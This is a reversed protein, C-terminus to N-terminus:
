GDIVDAYEPHKAYFHTMFPCVLVARRGSERLIDFAGRALETGIGQGSFESPVETHIFALKGDTDRYYAAAFATDHIAREFRHERPNERVRADLRSLAPAAQGEERRIADEVAPRQAMRWQFRLLTDPVAVGFKEAWRLMVFLFCDAASLEDGFLYDGRMQTAAFQLHRAVAEGALRKEADSSDHWMPKFAHHIDSEIFSLMELQRARGLAGSPQLSPKQGAIWDLLAINETLIQGDDFALAPVYGKPNIKLYDGSSATRKAHLDVSEIDFEFGAEILAIHDALSCAWPAYYLKM